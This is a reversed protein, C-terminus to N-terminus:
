KKEFTLKGGSDKVPKDSQLYAKDSESRKLYANWYHTSCLKVTDTIDNGRSGLGGGFSLHNAGDIVVLYKDGAPSYQFRRNRGCDTGGEIIEAGRCDGAIRYV